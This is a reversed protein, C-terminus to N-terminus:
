WFWSSGTNTSNKASHPARGYQESGDEEAQSDGGLRRGKRRFGGALIEVGIFRSQNGLGGALPDILEAPRKPFLLLNREVNDGDVRQGGVVGRALLTTM